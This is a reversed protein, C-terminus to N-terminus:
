KKKAQRRQYWELDAKAENEADAIMQKKLAPYTESFDFPHQWICVEKGPNDIRWQIREEKEKNHSRIALWILVTVVISFLTLESILDWPYPLQGGMYGKSGLLFGM